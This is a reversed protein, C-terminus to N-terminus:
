HVVEVKKRLLSRDTQVQLIYRGVPLQHVDIRLQTDTLRNATVPLGRGSMDVMELGHVYQRLEEAEIVIFDSSPNPYVRMEIETTAERGGATKFIPLTTFSRFLTNTITTSSAGFWDALISAYVQRFDNQMKISNNNLDSLNPNTGILKTKVAKGFVFLPAAEGHDTGRSANSVARRGFESFTMGVVRDETGQLKLDNQFATIADSLTKLLNAHTGTSNDGDTQAAHNDFGGLSVYYIKTKLGGHILRAVIKLQDALSNLTPYTALNTGADAATKIVSSYATASIQQQRIFKVQDGYPTAPLDSPPPTTSGGVLQYFTNPDQFIVATPGTPGLLATSISAGIQIALPDPMTTNPYGTPFGPFQDILYRGGWGTASNKDSDVATMWIDSARFHSLNPTPYSVGQVISLKGENYLGQLGTMSPHLGTAATGNLGLIKAQPIAINGRIENYKSMQDLSLVMNVGDNGGQMQIIVLAKDTAAAIGMLAQVFPSHQSFVSTGLGDITIPLVMSSTLYQLFNRRKM